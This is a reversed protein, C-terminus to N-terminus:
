ACEQCNYRALGRCLYLLYPACTLLCTACRQGGRGLFGPLDWNNGHGAYQDHMAWRSSRREWSIELSVAHLGRWTDKFYCLSSCSRFCLRNSQAARGAQHAENDNPREYVNRLQACCDTSTRPYSRLANCLAFGLMAVAPHTHKPPLM